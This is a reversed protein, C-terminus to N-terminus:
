DRRTIRAVLSQILGIERLGVRGSHGTQPGFLHGATNRTEHGEDVFHDM